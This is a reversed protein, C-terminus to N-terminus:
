WWEGVGCEGDGCEGDGCEGDGCAGDGCAGDGCEGDGCEGDGCEGDLHIEYQDDRSASNMLRLLWDRPSEGGTHSLHFDQVVWTLPPFTLLDHNFEDIESFHTM